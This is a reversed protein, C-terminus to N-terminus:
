ISFITNGFEATICTYPTKDPLSQEKALVAINVNVPDVVSVSHAVVVRGAKSELQRRGRAIGNVNNNLPSSRRYYCPFGNFKLFFHM